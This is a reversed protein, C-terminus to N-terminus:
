SVGHPSLCIPLLSTTKCYLKIKRNLYREHFVVGLVINVKPLWQKKKIKEPRIIRLLPPFFHPAEPQRLLEINDSQKLYHLGPISLLRYNFHVPSKLTRGSM